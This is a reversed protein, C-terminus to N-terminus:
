HLFFDLYISMTLRQNLISDSSMLSFTEFYMGKLSLGDGNIRIMAKYEIYDM